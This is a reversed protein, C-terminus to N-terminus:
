RFLGVGSASMKKTYSTMKMSLCEHSTFLCSAAGGQADRRPWMTPGLLLAEPEEFYPPSPKISPAASNMWLAGQLASPTVCCPASTVTHVNTVSSVTTQTTGRRVPVGTVATVASVCLASAVCLAQTSTQLRM